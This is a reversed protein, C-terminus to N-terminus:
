STIATLFNHGNSLYFQRWHLSLFGEIPGHHAEVICSLNQNVWIICLKAYWDFARSSLFKVTGDNHVNHADLTHQFQNDVADSSSLLDSSPCLLWFGVFFSIYLRGYRNFARWTAFEVIGMDQYDACQPYAPIPQWSCWKFASCKM